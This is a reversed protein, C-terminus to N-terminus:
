SAYWGGDVILLQGTVYEAADSALFVTPPGLQEPTGFAQMPIRAFLEARRTPDEFVAKTMETEVYGPSVGNFRIGHQSWERSLARVVGMLGSKAANYAVLNPLGLVSALSAVFVHSGTTGRDIQRRGVEQSLLFPATLNVDLVRQWESHPFTVAPERHQAGASHVVIDLPGSEEARDVLDPLADHDGLDATIARATGGRERISEATAEVQESSRAVLVVEAGAGALSETIARGIGRGAGTILARRGELSFAKSHAESLQTM